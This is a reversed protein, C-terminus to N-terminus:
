LLYGGNQNPPPSDGLGMCCLRQLSPSLIRGVVKPPLFTPPSLLSSYLFSEQSKSSPFLSLYSCPLFNLFPIYVMWLKYEAETGTPDKFSEAGDPSTMQPLNGGWFLDVLSSLGLAFIQNM